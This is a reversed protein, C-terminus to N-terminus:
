KWTSNLTIDVLIVRESLTITSPAEGVDPIAYSPPEKPVLPVLYVSFMIASAVLIILSNTFQNTKM